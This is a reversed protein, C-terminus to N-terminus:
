KEGERTNWAEIAEQKDIYEVLLEPNVPCRNHNCKIIFTGEYENTFITARGGCWPCPKIEEM